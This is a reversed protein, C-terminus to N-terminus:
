PRYREIIADIDANPAWDRRWLLRRALRNIPYGAVTCRRVKGTVRDYVIEIKHPNIPDHGKPTFVPALGEVVVEVQRIDRVVDGKINV